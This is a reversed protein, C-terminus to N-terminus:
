LKLIICSYKWGLIPLFILINLRPRFFLMRIFFFLTYGPRLAKLNYRCVNFKFCWHVEQSHVRLVNIRISFKLATARKLLCSLNSKLTKHLIYQSVMTYCNAVCRAKTVTRKSRVQGEAQFDNLWNLAFWIFFCKALFSISSTPFLFM